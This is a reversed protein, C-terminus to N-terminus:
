PAEGGLVLSLERPETDGRILFKAYLMKVSKNDVTALYFTCEIVQEIWGQGNTDGVRLLTARAESEAQAANEATYPKAVFSSLLDGFDPFFISEGKDTIMRLNAQQRVNDEGTVTALNDGDFVIDGDVLLLDTGVNIM